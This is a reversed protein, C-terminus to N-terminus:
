AAEVIGLFGQVHPQHVRNHWHFLQFSFGHAPTTFHQLVAWHRNAAQFRCQIRVTITLCSQM